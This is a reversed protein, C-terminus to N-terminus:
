VTLVPRTRALLPPDNKALAAANDWHFGQECPEPAYPISDVSGGDICGGPSLYVKSPAAPLYNPDPAFLHSVPFM